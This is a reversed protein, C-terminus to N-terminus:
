TSDRKASLSRTVRCLVFGRYIVKMLVLFWATALITLRVAECYVVTHLIQSDFILPLVYPCPSEIQVM